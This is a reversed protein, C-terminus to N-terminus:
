PVSCGDVTYESIAGILRNRMMFSSFKLFGKFPERRNGYFHCIIQRGNELRARPNLSLLMSLAKPLSIGAANGAMSALNFRM